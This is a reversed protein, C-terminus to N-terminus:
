HGNRLMRFFEEKEGERNENFLGRVASTVTKTGPAQVGRITMCMHEAEVVVIVGRPHVYKEIAAAIQSTIREQIQLRRSYANVLRAFKSLGVVNGDPLYGIHVHGTFPVLHHECLSCMPIDKVVVMDQAGEDFTKLIESIDEAYGVCLEEVYMRAVRDPTDSLGRRSYNPDLSKLMRTVEEKIRNKRVGPDKRYPFELPEAAMLRGGEYTAAM